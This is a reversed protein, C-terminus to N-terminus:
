PKTRRVEYAERILSIGSIGGGGGLKGRALGGKRKEAGSLGEKRVWEPLKRTSGIPWEGARSEMEGGGLGYGDNVSDRVAPAARLHEGKPRM